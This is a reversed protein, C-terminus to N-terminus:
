GASSRDTQSHRIKKYRSTYLADQAIVVKAPVKFAALKAKCAIRVRTLFIPQFPLISANMKSRSDPFYSGSKLSGTGSLVEDVFSFAM